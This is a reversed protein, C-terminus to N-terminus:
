FVFDLSVTLMQVRGDWAPSGSPLHIEGDRPTSSDRTATWREYQLKLAAKEHVDWRLGALEIRRDWPSQLRRDLGAIGQVTALSSGATAQLGLAAEKFRSAGISAYPTLAGFRRSVLAYWAEVEASFVSNGGRRTAEATLTWDGSDWNMGLNILRGEVDRTRARDPLASACNACPSGPRMLADFQADLADDHLDFRYAAVGLRLSLGGQQWRVASALLAQTDVRGRPLSVSNSGAGLDLSLNGEFAPQSWSINIGDVPESGNLGYVAAMPRVATHAFGVRLTESNIYIPLPQRGLRVSWDASHRWGIYAWETRASLGGVLDDRLQVQWVLELQESLQWGAQLGLVSDGDWRWQGDQSFNKVRDGPRVGVVADDGRYASLSGFGSLQLSEAQASVCASLSVSVGVMLPALPAILAHWSRM